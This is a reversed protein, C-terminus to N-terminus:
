KIQTPQATMVDNGDLAGAMPVFHVHNMRTEIEASLAAPMGEMFEVISKKLTEFDQRLQDIAVAMTEIEEEHRNIQRQEDSLLYDEDGPNM